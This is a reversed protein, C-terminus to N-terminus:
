SLRYVVVTTASAIRVGFRGSSAAPIVASGQITTGTNVTLTLSHTASALNIVSFEYTQGVASAAGRNDPVLSIVSAATPLQVDRGATPTATVIRSNIVQAATVAMSAGDTINAVSTAQGIPGNVSLRGNAVLGGFLGIGKTLRNAM